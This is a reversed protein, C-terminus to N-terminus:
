SRMLLLVSRHILNRLDLFPALYSSKAHELVAAIAAVSPDDLQSHHLHHFPTLPELNPPILPLM